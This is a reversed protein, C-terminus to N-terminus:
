RITKSDSGAYFDRSSRLLILDALSGGFYAKLRWYGGISWTRCVVCNPSEANM